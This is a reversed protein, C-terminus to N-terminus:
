IFAWVENDKIINPDCDWLEATKQVSKSKKCEDGSCNLNNSIHTFNGTATATVMCKKSNEASHIRNSKNDWRWKQNNNNSDCKDLHLVQKANDITLCNDDYRSKIHNNIDYHWDQHSAFASNKDMYSINHSPSPGGTRTLVYQPMFYNPELSNGTDFSDAKNILKGSTILTTGAPGQPGIPGVPGKIIAGQHTQIQNLHKHVTTKIKEDMIKDNEEKEKESKFEERPTTWINSKFNEISQKNNTTFNEPSARMPGNTYKLYIVFSLFLIIVVVLLIYFLKTKNINNNRLIKKM